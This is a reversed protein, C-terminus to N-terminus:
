PLERRPVHLQSRGRVAAAHRAIRGRDRPRDDFANQEVELRVGVCVVRVAVLEGRRQLVGALRGGRDLGHRSASATPYYPPPLSAM